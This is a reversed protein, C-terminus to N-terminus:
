LFIRLLHKLCIQIRIKSKKSTKQTANKIVEVLKFDAGFEFKSTTTLNKRDKFAYTCEATTYRKYLDPFPSLWLLCLVLSKRWDDSNPGGM